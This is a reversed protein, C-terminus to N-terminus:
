NKTKVLSVNRCCKLWMSKYILFLFLLCFWEFCLKLEPDAICTLCKYLTPLNLAVSSPTMKKNYILLLLHLMLDRLVFFTCWVELVLHAIKSLLSVSFPLPPMRSVLQLLNRLATIHSPLNTCTYVAAQQFSFLTFHDGLM